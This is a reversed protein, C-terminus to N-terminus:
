SFDMMTELQDRDSHWLSVTCGSSNLTETIEVVINQLVKDLSIDSSITKSAKHIAQEREKCRAIEIELESIREYLDSHTPKMSLGRFKEKGYTYKKHEVIEYKNICIVIGNDAHEANYESVM